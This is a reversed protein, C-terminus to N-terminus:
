LFLCLKLEGEFPGVLNYQRLTGLNSLRLILGAIQALHISHLHLAGPSTFARLSRTM